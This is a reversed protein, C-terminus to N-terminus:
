LVQVVNKFHKLSQMAFTFKLTRADSQSDTLPNNQIMMTEYGGVALEVLASRKYDYQRFAM